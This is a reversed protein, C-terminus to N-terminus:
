VVYYFFIKYGESRVYLLLFLFLSKTSIKRKKVELRVYLLLFGVMFIKLFLMFLSTKFSISHDTAIFGKGIKLNGTNRFDRNKQCAECVYISTNNKNFSENTWKIWSLEYYPKYNGLLPGGCLRCTGGYITPNQNYLAKYIIQSASLM